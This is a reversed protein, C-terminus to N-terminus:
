KLCLQSVRNLLEQPRFPKRILSEYLQPDFDTVKEIDVYGSIMQVKIDPRVERARKALSFGNLDPMLVDSIVLDYQTSQLASLADLASEYIDVQHGVQRLLKAVVDALPLEDDVVLIKQSAHHPQNTVMEVVSNQQAQSEIAPFYISFVTGKESTKVEVQGKSRQIFAYVQSLGLGTGKEGKTSFFPDFISDLFEEPIGTGTDSVECRVHLSPSAGVLDNQYWQTSTKIIVTGAENIAHVSNIVLNLIMDDFDHKDLNVSPLEEALEFILKVDAKLSKELLQQSELLAKNLSFIESLESEKKSFSLLKQTLNTAREGAKVIAQIYSRSDEDLGEQMMIIDSYGLMIGILNNFDHAIGGTLKGLADMKMSRRLQEEKEKINTLDVCNGIFRRVGNPMLPLESISLHMPFVSNDARKGVVQRGIGIVQKQGTTMYNSIFQDHHKAFEDPMLTKVNKGIVSQAQYQFAVEAAKNFTLIQGRDNITIVPDVMSQLVEDKEAEKLELSEIVDHLMTIDSILSAYRPPESQTDFVTFSQWETVRQQGKADSIAILQKAAYEDSMTSFLYRELEVNFESTVVETLNSGILSTQSVGFLDSAAQNCFVITLSKDWEIIALPAHRVLGALRKQTQQLTYDTRKQITIDSIVGAMAYKRDARKVIPFLTIASYFTEGRRKYHVEERIYSDGTMVSNMRNDIFDAINKPCAQLLEQANKIPTTVSLFQKLQSNLYAVEANEQLLFVSEPINEIISYFKRESLQLQLNLEFEKQQDVFAVLYFGQAQKKLNLKTVSLNISHWKERYLWFSKVSKGSNREAEISLSLLQDTDCTHSLKFFRKFKAFSQPQSTLYSQAVHNLDLIHGQENVIVVADTIGEFLAQFYDKQERTAAHSAALDQFLRNSRRALESIEDKGGIEILTTSNNSNYTDFHRFIKQLRNRISVHFILAVLLATVLMIVFLPTFAHMTSNQIYRAVLSYDALIVLHKNQDVNQGLSIVGVMVLMNTTKDFYSYDQENSLANLVELTLEPPMDFATTLAQATVGRYKQNTSIEVHGQTNFVVALAVESHTKMLSLYEEVVDMRNESVMFEIATKAQVFLSSVEDLRTELHSDATQKLTFIHLTAVQALLGFVVVVFIKLAIPIRAFNSLRQM